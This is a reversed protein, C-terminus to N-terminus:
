MGLPTFNTFFKVCIIFIDEMVLRSILDNVKALPSTAKPLNQRGLVFSSGTSPAKKCGPLEPFLIVKRPAVHLFPRCTEELVKLYAKM